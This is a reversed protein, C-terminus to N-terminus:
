TGCWVKATRPTYIGITIFGLLGDVFTTQAQMQRAPKAGCIQKVDVHHKGVLGYIFFSQSEEWSPETAMKGTGKDRITITSCASLAVMLLAISMLAAIRKM